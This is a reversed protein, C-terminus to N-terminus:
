EDYMLFMLYYVNITFEMFIHRRNIMKRHDYILYKERDFGNGTWYFFLLYINEMEEKNLSGMISDWFCKRQKEKEVNYSPYKEEMRLLLGFYIIDLLVKVAHCSATILSSFNWPFVEGDVKEKRCRCFSLQFNQYYFNIQIYRISICFTTHFVSLFFLQIPFIRMWKVYVYLISSSFQRCEKM